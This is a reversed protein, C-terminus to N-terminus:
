FVGFVDNGAAFNSDEMEINNQHKLLSKMADCNHTGGVADLQVMQQRLECYVKRVKFCSLDKISLIIVELKPLNEKLYKYNSLSEVSLINLSKFGCFSQITQPGPNGVFDLVKLKNLNASKPIHTFKNHAISLYSLSEMKLLCTWDDLSNNTAHVYFMDMEEPCNIFKLKNNFIELLTTEKAIDIREIQNNAVDIELSRIAPVYTLLNYTVHLKELGRLHQFAEADITRIRNECLMISKLKDCGQFFNKDIIEIKNGILNIDKLNPTFKISGNLSKLNNNYIALTRIDGIEKFATEDLITLNNNNLTLSGLNGCNVFSNKDLRSIEIDVFSKYSSNECDVKTCCYNRLLIILFLKLLIGRTTAM